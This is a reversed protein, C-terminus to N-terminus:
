ESDKRLNTYNKDPDLLPVLNKVENLGKELSYITRYGATHIKKYSMEYDRQDEDFRTTDTKIRAGTLRSITTCLEAKTVNLSENGAIFVKGRVLDPRNIAFLFARAADRVHLFPRRVGPEFVEIKGTTCAEYMLQNPMLDLRMRSSAGFFTPFRFATFNKIHTKLEQEAKLKTTGYLSLPNTETNEDCKKGLVKGYVSVTSAYLVRQTTCARLINQAGGVNVEETRRADKRCAPFGVLAALHIVIDQGEVAEEVAGLDAVDGKILRFNVDRLHPILAEGGFSLNDLVTVAHGENRVERVVESGLYGAGGTILVRM